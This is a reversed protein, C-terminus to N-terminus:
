VLCYNYYKRLIVFVDIDKSKLFKNCILINTIKITLM